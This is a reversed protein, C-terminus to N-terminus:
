NGSTPGHKEIDDAMALLEQVAQGANYDWESAPRPPLEPSDQCMQIGSNVFEAVHRLDNAWEQEKTPGRNMAETAGADRALDKFGEELTVPKHDPRAALENLVRAHHRLSGEVIKDTEHNAVINLVDAAMKVAGRDKDTFTIM